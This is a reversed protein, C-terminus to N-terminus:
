ALIDSTIKDVLEEFEKLRIDIKKFDEICESAYVRKTLLKKSDSFQECFSVYDIWERGTEKLNFIIQWHYAPDYSNRKICEYQVPVIVSKIEVIGNDDVLGDPSCGTKGNDFFGGNTVSCFYEEEYLMRAIPEEVHGAEMHINSYRDGGVAAGKIREVAIISAYKKAPDGFPKGYNAMVKSIASGTVKGARLPLWEDTNQKVDIWM